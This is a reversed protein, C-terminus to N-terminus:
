QKQIRKKLEELFPKEDGKKTLKISFLPGSNKDNFVEYSDKKLLYTLFSVFAILLSLGLGLMRLKLPLLFPSGLIVGIFVFFWALNEFAKNGNRATSVTSSLISLDIERSGSAVLSQYSQLLKSDTLEYTWKLNWNLPYKQVLKM